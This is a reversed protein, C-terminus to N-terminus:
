ARKPNSVHVHWCGIKGRSEESGKAISPESVLLGECPGHVLQYEWDDPISGAFYKLSKDLYFDAWLNRAETTDNKEDNDRFRDPVILCQIRRLCRRHTESRKKPQNPLQPPQMLRHFANTAAVRYRNRRGFPDYRRAWLRM